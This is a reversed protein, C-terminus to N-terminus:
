TTQSGHRHCKEPQLEALFVKEFNSINGSAAPLGRAADLAISIKRVAQNIPFNWPSFAAVPGVPEKVVLRYVGEARAPIM